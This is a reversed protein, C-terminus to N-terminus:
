PGFGFISGLTMKPPNALLESQEKTLEEIQQEYKDVPTAVAGKPKALTHKPEGRYESFKVEITWEGDQTQDPPGVDEVAVSYIGQDVLIPHWIDLARPEVRPPPKILLPSFQNWESWDQETYLRFRVSFHALKIGHFVITAGSMGAGDREEWNRPSNAGVIDCLGPSWVQALWIKDYPESLPNWSM